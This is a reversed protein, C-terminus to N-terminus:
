GGLDATTMAAAVPFDSLAAIMQTQEGRWIAFVVGVIKAGAEDVLRTADVVAGGTTIVDEILVVPKGRVDAGEVALCADSFRLLWTMQSSRLGVVLPRALRAPPRLAMGQRLSPRALQLVVGCASSAAPPHLARYAASFSRSPFFHDRGGCAPFRHSMQLAPERHALPPRTSHNHRISGFARAAIRRRRSRFHCFALAMASGKHAM